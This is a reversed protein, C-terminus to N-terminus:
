PANRASYYSVVRDGIRIESFADIIKVVSSTADTRLAVGHGLYLKPLSTEESDAPNDRFIIFLDGPAVNSEFGLDVGVTAGTAVRTVQDETLVILGSGETDFEQFASYTQLRDAVPRETILPIPEQEYPTLFDGVRAESCSDIILATSTDDQVAIVRLRGVQDIAFGLFVNKSSLWSKRTEPHYVPYLVRRISYEEGAAVGQEAGQNLYVINDTAFNEVIDIEGGAIKLNFPLVDSESEADYLYTSCELDSRDGAPLIVFESGAEDFFTTESRDSVVDGDASGDAGEGQGSGDAFEDLEAFVDTGEGDQQALDESVTEDTVIVGVDLLIPDGPYILDPDNIYGNAQYISPWLLPDGLYTAAIGWLTDGKQVIHVNVGAPIERPYQYPSWHEEITTQAQLGVSSLISSLLVGIV